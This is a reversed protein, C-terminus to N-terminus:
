RRRGFIRLFFLFLNVFDLYLKLAGLISIKMYMQEDVEDGLSENWRKIIQTDYATLGIFVAVGIYSILYYLASSRLFFNVVSAIIVGWLGMILYHGIGSLDRKTTLAYLSTGAFTGATIFFVNTISTGTYFLFILSLTVGNLASYAVFLLTATGAEMKMIRASLFIVLLLEGIILGFFLMPNEVLARTIVQNTSVYLAVAGTLALGGTMWLYVNRLISRERVFQASLTNQNRDAM